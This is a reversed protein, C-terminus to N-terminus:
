SARPEPSTLTALAADFERGLSLRDSADLWTSEIGDRAIQAMEDLGFGLAEGVTRYETGLDDDMLAPDDTNITVLLGAELMARLPHEALSRFRNAIVVNSLPCVTLPTRDGALRGM